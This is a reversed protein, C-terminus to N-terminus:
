LSNEYRKVTFAFCKACLAQFKPLRPRTKSRYPLIQLSVTSIIPHVGGNEAAKRLLTNMIVGYNKANRLPDAARKEFLTPSFSARLQEEMHPQGLTVARIIENEFAYRRELVKMNVLTDTGETDATLPKFYDNAPLEEETIETVDFSTTKWIRECFTHLMSWLPSDAPLVPIGSYYEFIYKQVQPSLGNKEGLELIRQSTVPSPLYPGISLLTTKQTAPLLLFRYCLSFSDTLKYVTNHSFSLCHECLLQRCPFFDNPTKESLLRILEEREIAAAHIHNRQFVECLFSLEERYFM